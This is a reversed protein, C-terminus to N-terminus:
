QTVIRGTVDPHNACHYTGGFGVSASGSYTGPDLPGTDVSGDDLTIRHPVTDLNHWVVMGGPSITAPNPSFALSGNAAVINITAISNTPTPGALNTMAPNRQCGWSGLTVTMLTAITLLRM